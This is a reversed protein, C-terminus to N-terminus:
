CFYAALGVFSTIKLSSEPRPFLLLPLLPLFPLFSKSTTGGERPEKELGTGGDGDGGIFLSGVKRSSVPLLM